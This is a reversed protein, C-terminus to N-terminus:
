AAVRQQSKLYRCWKKARLVAKARTPCVGAKLTQSVIQYGFTYVRFEFGAATKTTKWTIVM